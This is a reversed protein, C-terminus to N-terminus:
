NKALVPNKIPDKAFFIYVFVAILVIAGMTLGLAQFGVTPEIYLNLVAGGLAIGVAAGVGGFASSLSMVSGRFRPVQELILNAIAAVSLGGFFSAIWRFIVRVWFNPIFYSFLTLLGATFVTIVAQRKRGVRNVTNGGIVAGIAIFSTSATPGILAAFSPSAYFIQRYFTVEFVLGGFVSANVLFSGVLCAVASRNSFIQKFGSMFPKKIISKQSEPLNSPFIILVFVLSVIAIPLMLLLYVLRWDAIGIMYGVIPSGVANAISGTAVVWGIAKAKRSIPYSYGIFTQATVVILVSGIGNLPYILQALQFTPALYLGLACIAVLLVGLLVLIKYRFKSIFAGLFLATFVSAIRNFAGLQSATGPLIGFTDAIEMLSVPAVIDIIAGAFVAVLLAVVLILKPSSRDDNSSVSVM